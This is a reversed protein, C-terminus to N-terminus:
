PECDQRHMLVRPRLRRSGLLVKGSLRGPLGVRVQRAAISRSGARGGAASRVRAMRASAPEGQLNAVIARSDFESESLEGPGLSHSHSIVHPCLTLTTSSPQLLTSSPRDARHLVLLDPPPPPDSQECVQVFEESTFAGQARLAVDVMGRLGEVIGLFRRMPERRGFSFKDCVHGCSNMAPVFIARSAPASGHDETPSFFPSLAARSPLHLPQEYAIDLRAKAVAWYERGGRMLEATRVADECAQYDCMM